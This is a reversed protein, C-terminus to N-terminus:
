FALRLELSPALTVGGRYARVHRPSANAPKVETWTWGAFLLPTAIRVSLARCGASVTILGGARAGAGKV